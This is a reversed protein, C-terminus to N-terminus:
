SREALARLRAAPQGTLYVRQQRIAEMPSMHPLQRLLYFGTKLLGGLSLVRKRVLYAIFLRETTTGPLLTRDVDFVAAIAVPTAPGAVPNAPSEM